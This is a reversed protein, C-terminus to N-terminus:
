VFAIPWRGDAARRMFDGMRRILDADAPRPEIVPERLFDFLAAVDIAEGITLSGDCDSHDVLKRLGHAANWAPSGFAFGCGAALDEPIADYHIGLDASWLAKALDDETLEVADPDPQLGKVWELLSQIGDHDAEPVQWAQAVFMLVLMARFKHVYTYGGAEMRDICEGDRMMALALGM